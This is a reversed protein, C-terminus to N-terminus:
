KNIVIRIGVVLMIIVFVLFTLAVLGGLLEPLNYFVSLYGDVFNNM